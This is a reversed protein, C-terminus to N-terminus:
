EGLFKKEIEKTIDCLEKGISNGYMLYKDIKNKLTQWMQEYVGENAPIDLIFPKEAGQRYILVKGNTIDGNNIADVNVSGDEVCLIKM